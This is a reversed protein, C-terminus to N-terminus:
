TVMGACSVGQKEELAQSAEQHTPFVILCYSSKGDQM